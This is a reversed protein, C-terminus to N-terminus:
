MCMIVILMSTICVELAVSVALMNGIVADQRRGGDQIYMDIVNLAAYMRRVSNSMDLGGFGKQAKLYDDAEIVDKVITEADIDLMSLLGLSALEQGVGLQHKEAKLGDYIAEVKRCKGEADNKNLSLVHCLAQVANANIGGFKEKLIPYCRDAELILADIDAGSVALLAAFPIDEDGTLWKHTEKMREYIEKTKEAFYAADKVGGHDCLIMAALLKYESGIWKSQNLAQYVAEIDSYYTEPNEAIAMKCLLPLKINGRFESFAGSRSKLIRECEKLTDADAKQRQGSLYMSGALAMLQDDWKFTHKIIDCNEVFEECIGQLATNM